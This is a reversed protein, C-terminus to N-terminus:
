SKAWKTDNGNIADLVFERDDRVQVVTTIKENTKSYRSKTWQLDVKWVAFLIFKM